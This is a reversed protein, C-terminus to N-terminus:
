SSLCLCAGIFLLAAAGLGVKIRMAPVQDKWWKDFADGVIERNAEPLTMPLVFWAFACAFVLKLLGFGLQLAGSVLTSLFPSEKVYNNGLLALLFLVVAFVLLSVLLERWNSILTKLNM